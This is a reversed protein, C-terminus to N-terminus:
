KQTISPNDSNILYHAPISEPKGTWVTFDSRSPRGPYHHKPKGDIAKQFALEDTVSAIKYHNGNGDVQNIIFVTYQTKSIEHRYYMDVAHGILEAQTM